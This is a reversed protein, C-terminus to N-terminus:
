LREGFRRYWAITESLGQELRTSPQWGLRQGAKNVDLTKIVPKEKPAGRFVPERERGDYLRSVLRALDRTAVPRGSGFNIAQGVVADLQEAVLIYARAMDSIYLYDLRTTGDDRDGFDYPAQQMLNRIARPVIRSFNSDGPGYTNM